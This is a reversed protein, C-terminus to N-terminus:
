SLTSTDLIFNVDLEQGIVVAPNVICVWAINAVPLVSAIGAYIAADTIAQSGRSIYFQPGYYTTPQSRTGYGGAAAGVSWGGANPVTVIPPRSVTVFEQFPLSRSGWAGASGYFAGYTQASGRTGYGGTDQPNRPEVIVGPAGTADLIEQALASRTAKPRLIERNARLRFAEDTEGIQRSIRSGLFDEVKADLADSTATSFRIASRAYVIWLQLSAHAYALGNLVGLLLPAMAASAFWGNPLQARIRSVFDQQDGIAM